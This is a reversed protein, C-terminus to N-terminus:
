SGGDCSRLPRRSSSDDDAAGVDGPKGHLIIGHGDDMPSINWNDAHNKYFHELQSKGQKPARVLCERISLIVSM